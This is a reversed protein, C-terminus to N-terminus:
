LYFLQHCSLCELYEFYKNYNPQNEIAGSGVRYVIEGCECTLGSGEVIRKLDEKAESQMFAEKINFCSDRKIFHCYGRKKDVHNKECSIIM